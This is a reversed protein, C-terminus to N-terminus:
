LSCFVFHFPFRFIGMSAATFESMNTVVVGAATVQVDHKRTAEEEPTALLDRITENYIEM